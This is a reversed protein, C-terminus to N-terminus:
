LNDLFGAAIGGGRLPLNKTISCTIEKKQIGKIRDVAISRLNQRASFICTSLFM